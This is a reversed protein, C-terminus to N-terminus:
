YDQVSDVPPWTSLLNSLFHPPTSSPIRRASHPSPLPATSVGTCAQVPLPPSEQNDWALGGCTCAGGAVCGLETWEM